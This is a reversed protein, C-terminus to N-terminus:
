SGKERMDIFYHFRSFILFFFGVTLRRILYWAHYILNTPQVLLHDIISKKKLITQPFLSTLYVHKQIPVKSMSTGNLFNIPLM